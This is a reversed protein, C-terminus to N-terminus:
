DFFVQVINNTRVNIQCYTTTKLMAGFGNQFKAADDILIITGDTHISKGTRYSGFNPTLWGGWDVEGKAYKEAESKCSYKSSPAGHINIYDGNDACAQWDRKCAAEYVETSVAVNKANIGAAIATAINKELQAAKAKEAEAKAKEVEAKEIAAWRQKELYDKFEQDDSELDNQLAYLLNEVGHFDSIEKRLDSCDKKGFGLFGSQGSIWELVPEVNDEFIAMCASAESESIGYKAALVENKSPGSSGSGIALALMGLFFTLKAFINIQEMIKLNEM